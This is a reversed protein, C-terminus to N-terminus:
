VCFSYFIIHIKRISSDCFQLCELYGASTAKTHLVILCQECQWPLDEIIWMIFLYCFM